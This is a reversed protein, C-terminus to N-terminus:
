KTARTRLAKLATTVDVRDHGQLFMLRNELIATIRENLGMRQLDALTIRRPGVLDVLVISDFPLPIETM